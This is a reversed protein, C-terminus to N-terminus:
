LRLHVPHFLEITGDNRHDACLLRSSKLFDLEDHTLGFTECTKEIDSKLVRHRQDHTGYHKQNYYSWGLLIVVMVELVLFYDWIADLLGSFGDSEMFLSLFREFGLYWAIATIFPLWLYAWIAWCATFFLVLGLRHSRTQLKPRDIIIEREDM